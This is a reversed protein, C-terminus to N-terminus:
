LGGEQLFINVGSLKCVFITAKCRSIKFTYIVLPQSFLCRAKESITMRINQFQLSHLCGQRGAWGAMDHRRMCGTLQYHFTAIPCVKYGKCLWASKEDKELSWRFFAMKKEKQQKINTKMLLTNAHFYDILDVQRRNGKWKQNFIALNQGTTLCTCRKVESSVLRNWCTGQKLALWKFSFEGELEALFTKLRIHWKELM